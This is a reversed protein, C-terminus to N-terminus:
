LKIRRKELKKVKIGQIKEIDSLTVPFGMKKKLRLNKRCCLVEYGKQYLKM